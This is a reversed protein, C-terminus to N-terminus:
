AVRMRYGEGRDGASSWKIARVTNAVGAQGEVRSLWQELSGEDGLGRRMELRGRIWGSGEPMVEVQALERTM